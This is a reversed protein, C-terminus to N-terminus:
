TNHLGELWTSSTVFQFPTPSSSLSHICTVLCIFYTRAQQWGQRNSFDQVSTYCRAETVKSIAPLHFHLHPHIVVADQRYALLSSSITTILPSILYYQSTIVFAAKPLATLSSFSQSLLISPLPILCKSRFKIVRAGCACKQHPVPCVLLCIVTIVTWIKNSRVGTCM